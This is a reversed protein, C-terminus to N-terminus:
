CPRTELVSLVNALTQPDFGARVRVICGHGLIIEVDQTAKADCAEVVRVPLFSPAPSRKSAAQTAPLALPRSDNVTEVSRKDARAGHQTLRRRWFFFASEQVGEARCFARVSQGSERWRRITEEWYRQRQPDGRKVRSEM